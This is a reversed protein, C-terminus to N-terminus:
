CCLFVELHMEGVAHNIGRAAHFIGISHKIVNLGPTLAIFIQLITQRLLSTRKMSSNLIKLNM